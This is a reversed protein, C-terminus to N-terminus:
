VSPPPRDFHADQFRDFHETANEALVICSSSCEMHSISYASEPLANGAPFISHPTGDHDRRVSTGTESFNQAVLLDDTLSIVPFLVMMLTAAAILETARRPVSVRRQIFWLRFLCAAASLWVFNLFLEM